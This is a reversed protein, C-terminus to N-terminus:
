GRQTTINYYKSKANKKKIEPATVKFSKGCEGCKLTKEGKFSMNEKFVYGCYCVFGMLKAPVGWVAGHKPVDKTLVSGAGVMAYEGINIDPMITVNGGITAGKGVVWRLNSVDRNRHSRPFKDNTFLVGPGIFVDDEIVFGTSVLVENQMRVNNGIIVHRDIYVGKGLSCNSGIVSHAALQVFNWIKSGEGIRATADVVATAAIQTVLKEQTM